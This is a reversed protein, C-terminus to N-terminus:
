GEYFVGEILVPPWNRQFDRRDRGLGAELMDSRDGNYGLSEPFKERDISISVALREMFYRYKPGNHMDDLHIEAWALCAAKITSSHEAGGYAYPEAGTLMKGQIIYRAKLTYDEDAQPWVMLRSRQGHHPTPGSTPEVELVEPRGTQDPYVTYKTRVGGRTPLTYGQNEIMVHVRSDLGAFDAPLDVWQMGEKLTLTAIPKLFSWTHSVGSQGVPPKYFLQLGGKIVQKLTTLKKANYETEQFATGRGWGLDFGVSGIVDLYTDALTSEM